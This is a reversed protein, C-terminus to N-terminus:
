RDKKIFTHFRPSESDMAPRIYPRAEMKSTGLELWKGYPLNTGIQRTLEKPKVVAVSSRLKGTQVAPPEGELSRRRKHARAKKKGRKAKPPETGSKPETMSSKIKNQIAIATKGLARDARKNLEAMVEKGFWNIGETM